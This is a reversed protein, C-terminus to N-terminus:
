ITIIIWATVVGSGIIVVSLVINLILGLSIARSALPNRGLALIGNQASRGFTLFSFAVSGLLIVGALVFRFAEIPDELAAITSLNVADLLNNKVRQQDTISRPLTFKIDLTIIISGEQNIDAPAFPEQAVGVSIGSKDALMAVGPTDSSTLRDGVSIPGNKATVRVPLTGTTLVPVSTVDPSDYTFEIAPRESVVGFIYPDFPESTVRYQGDIYTIISGPLIPDGPITIRQAVGLANLDTATQALTPSQPAFTLYIGLALAIGLLLPATSSTSRIM